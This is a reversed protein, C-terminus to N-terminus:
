VQFCNLGALIYKVYDRCNHTLVNYKVSWSLKLRYFDRFIKGSRCRYGSITIPHSSVMSNLYTQKRLYHTCNVIESCNFDTLIYGTQSGSSIKIFLFHHRFNLFKAVSSKSNDTIDRGYKIVKLIRWSELRKVPIRPFNTGTHDCITEEIVPSSIIQSNGM